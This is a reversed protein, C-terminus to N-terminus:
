KIFVSNFMASSCIGLLVVEVFYLLSHALSSHLFATLNRQAVKFFKSYVWCSFIKVSIFVASGFGSFDDFVGFSICPSIVNSFNITVCLWFLIASSKSFLQSFLLVGVFCRLGLLRFIM